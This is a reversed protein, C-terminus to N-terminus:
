VDSAAEMAELELIVLASFHELWVRVDDVRVTEARRRNVDGSVIDNYGKFLHTRGVSTNHPEQVTISIRYRRQEKWHIARILSDVKDPKYRELIATVESMLENDRRGAECEKFEPWIQDRVTNRCRSTAKDECIVVSSLSETPSLQVMLSDFGKDSARPQPTSVAVNGKSSTSTHLAVWSIMQFLWGDRHDTPLALLKSIAGGTSEKSSSPQLRKTATLIGEVHRYHGLVLRAVLRALCKEDTVTWEFGYCLEGDHYEKLEIPSTSVKKAKLM